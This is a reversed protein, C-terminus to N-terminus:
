KLDQLLHVLKIDKNELIFKKVARIRAHYEFQYLQFFLNHVFGENSTFM